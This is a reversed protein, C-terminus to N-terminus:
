RELATTPGDRPCTCPEPTRGDPRAFKHGQRSPSSRQNSLRCRENRAYEPDHFEGTVARVTCPVARTRDPCTLLICNSSSDPSRTAPM